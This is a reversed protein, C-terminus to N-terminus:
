SRYIGRYHMARNRCSQAAIIRDLAEFESAAIEYKFPDCDREAEVRLKVAYEYRNVMM